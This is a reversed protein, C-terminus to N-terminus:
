SFAKFAEQDDASLETAFFDRNEPCAPGGNTESSPDLPDKVDPVWPAPLKQGRLENFDINGFWGHGIIDEIGGSLNGLRETSNNSLLRFTLVKWDYLVKDLGQSQPNLGSCFEPYRYDAKVIRKMLNIQDM